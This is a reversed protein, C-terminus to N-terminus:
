VGRLLFQGYKFERFEYPFVGQENYLGRLVLTDYMVQCTTRVTNSFDERNIQTKAKSYAYEFYDGFAIDTCLCTVETYFEDRIKLCDIVDSFLFKKNLGLKELQDAYYGLMKGEPGADISIIM